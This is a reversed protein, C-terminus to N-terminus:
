CNKFTFNNILVQLKKSIQEMDKLLSEMNQIELAEKEISKDISKLSETFSLSSSSVEQLAVAITEKEGRIYEVNEKISSILSFIDESLRTTDQCKERANELLKIEQTKSLTVELLNDKTKISNNFISASIDEAEKMKETISLSLKKIEMAVVKFGAGEYGAKEAEISANFSLMHAKKSLEKVASVVNDIEGIKEQLYEYSKNVHELKSSTTNSIENLENVAEISVKANNKVLVVESHMHSFSGDIKELNKSLATFTNESNSFASNLTKCDLVLTNSHNNIGGIYMSLLEQLKIIKKNVSFLEQLASKIGLVLAKLNQTMINFSKSLSFTEINNGILENEKFEGRSIEQARKSIAQLSSINLKICLYIIISLVLFMLSELLGLFAAISKADKELNEEDINMFIVSKLEPIVIFHGEYLKGKNEFSIDGSANRKFFDKKNILNKIEKIEIKKSIYYKEKHYIYNDSSNLIFASSTKSLDMSNLKSSFYESYLNEGLAGIYEGKEGYLPIIFTIVYRGSVSSIYIDSKNVKGKEMGKYYNTNGVDMSIFEKNSSFKIIGKEDTIFVNEFYDKGEACNNLLSTVEGNVKEIENASKEDSAAKKVYKNDSLKLIENERESMMSKFNDSIVSAMLKMNKNNLTIVKSRITSYIWISSSILFLLLIIFLPILIKTIISKKENIKNKRMIM